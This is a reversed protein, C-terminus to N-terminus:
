KNYLDMIDMCKFKMRNSFGKNMSIKTTILDKVKSILVYRSVENLLIDKGDSFIVFINEVIEENIQVESFQQKTSEIKDFYYDLIDNIINFSTLEKKISYIIFTLIAKRNENLKNIECYKNYDDNPDVYEFEDMLDKYQDVFYNRYEEFLIFNNLIFIFLEVYVESYFRNNIVIKFFCNMIKTYKDTDTEEIDANVIDNIIKVIHEQHQEMNSTTLKNLIGRLNDLLEEIGASKEIVTAKFPEKKVWQSEILNRNKDRKISKPKTQINVNLLKVLESIINNTESAPEYSEMNNKIDYIEVLSYKCLM